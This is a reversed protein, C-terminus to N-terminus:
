SIFTAEPKLEIDFKAKVGQVIHDALESIDASTANGRNTIALTHKSSIAARGNLTFGKNFGAQEILWAASVKVTGDAEPWNPANAPAVAVRPNMFFSGVSWTDHDASDLVMGKRSRLDLVATQLDTTSVRDGLEVKLKTALENYAIPASMTGLPLQFTVSLIVWTDPQKKFISTRYGFECDAAFITEVSKTKKNWARVQAITDSVSQGYAGVNQIPTAGVTGPIGALGEIGTWGNVVASAAFDNWNHGAAVTVWAGACASEDNEFGQSEIKIVDGNFDDSVIINSGGGLVLANPNASVAEIIEIETTAVAMSNPTGGVRLTTLEALRRM